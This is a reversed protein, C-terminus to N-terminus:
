RNAHPSLFSFSVTHSNYAAEGGGGGSIKSCSSEGNDQEGAAQKDTLLQLPVANVACIKGALFGDM